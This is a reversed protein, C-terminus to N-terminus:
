SPSSLFVLKFELVAFECDMTAQTYETQKKDAKLPHM